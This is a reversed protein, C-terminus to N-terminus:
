GHILKSIKPNEFRRLLLSVVCPCAALDKPPEATAKLLPSLGPLTSRHGGVRAAWVAAEERAGEKM